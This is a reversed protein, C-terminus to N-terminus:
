TPSDCEVGVREADTHLRALRRHDQFGVRDAEREVELCLDAIKQINRQAIALEYASILREIKSM